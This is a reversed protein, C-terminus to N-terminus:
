LGDVIYKTTIKLELVPSTCFPCHYIIHKYIHNSLTSTSTIGIVILKQESLKWAEASPELISVGGALCLFYKVPTLLMAALSGASTEREFTRM